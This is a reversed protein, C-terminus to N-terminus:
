GNGEKQVKRLKENLCSCITLCCQLKISSMFFFFVLYKYGFISPMSYFLHGVQFYTNQQQQQQKM